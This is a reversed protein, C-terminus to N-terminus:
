TLKVQMAKMIEMTIDDQVAFIDELDRDYRESWLHYGTTADILQTTIRIRDATRQVSGEL